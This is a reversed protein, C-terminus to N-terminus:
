DRTVEPTVTVGGELLRTVTNVGSTLELDWVGEFPAPLATTDAVPVHLAITGAADGLTIGDGVTLDLLATASTVMSRVQARADWGTLDVPTGDVSWTFTINFSTGQEITLDYHGSM